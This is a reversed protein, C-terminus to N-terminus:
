KTVTFDFATLNDMNSITYSSVPTVVAGNQTTGLTITVDSAVTTANCSISYTGPTNTALTDCTGAADTSLTLKNLNVSPGGTQVLTIQGTLTVSTPALTCYTEDMLQVTNAEGGTLVREFTKPAINTDSALGSATASCSSAPAPGSSNVILFDHCAYPINIGESTANNRVSSYERGTSAGADADLIQENFCVQEQGGGDDDVGRLGIKGRWGGPGIGNDMYAQIDSASPSSGSAFICGSGPDSWSEACNGCVYCAYPIVTNGTGPVFECVGYQSADVDIADLDNVTFIKGTIPIIKHGFCTLLTETSDSNYVIRNGDVDFGEQIHSFATWEPHSPENSPLIETTGGVPPGGGLESSKNNPSPALAPLGAQAEAESYIISASPDTWVIESNVTINDAVNNKNTWGVAVSLIRQNLETGNEVKVTRTFTANVGNVTDVTEAVVLNETFTNIAISDDPDSLIIDNRLEELKQEALSRAENRAKNEGSSSILEGQLSAIALLGLSVVVLAVLVEILGIGHHQYTRYNM